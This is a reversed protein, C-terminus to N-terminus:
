HGPPRRSLLECTARRLLAGLTTARNGVIGEGPGPHQSIGNDEPREEYHYPQTEIGNVTLLSPLPVDEVERLQVDYEVHAAGDRTARSWTGVSFRRAVGDVEGVLPAAGSAADKLLREVRESLQGLPAAFTVRGNLLNRGTSVSRTASAEQLALDLQDEALQLQVTSQQLM